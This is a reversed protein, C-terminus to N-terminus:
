AGTGTFPPATVSAAAAQAVVDKDTFGDIREVLTGPRRYILVGPAPLLGGGPLATTLAAALPNDLLSIGVFGVRADSAGAKAEAYSIADTSSQPDFVSVVVIRHTRLAQDIVTPLGNKAVVPAKPAAHKAPRHAPTAPKTATAATTSTRHPATAAPITPAAPKSVVVPPAAAQKPKLALMSAGGAAAIVAVLAFIKIPRSVTLDM